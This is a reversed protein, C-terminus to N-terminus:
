PRRQVIVSELQGVKLPTSATVPVSLRGSRGLASWGVSWWTTAEVTYDGARQYTHGCTPSPQMPDADAPRPTTTRCALTTGDGLDFTTSSRTASLSIAIGNMTVTADVDTRDDTWLWVPLGVALMDWKNNAPDPGIQPTGNPLKLTSAAYIAWAAVDISPTTSDASPSASTSPATTPAEPLLCVQQTVGGYQWGKCWTTADSGPVGLRNTWVIPPPPAGNETGLDSLIPPWPESDGQADTAAGSWEQDATVTVQSGNSQSFKVDSSYQSDACSSSTCEAPTLLFLITAILFM